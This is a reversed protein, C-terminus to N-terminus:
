RVHGHHGPVRDVDPRRAGPGTLLWRAGEDYLEPAEGYSRMNILRVDYNIQKEELLMWLKQCYPCWAASDRYFTVRTPKARRFGANWRRWPRAIKREARLAFEQAITAGALRRRSSTWCHARQASLSAAMGLQVAASSDARPRGIAPPAQEPGGHAVTAERRCTNAAGAVDSARRHRGRVAM